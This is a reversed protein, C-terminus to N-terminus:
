SSAPALEKGRIADRFEDVEMPEVDLVECLKRITSLSPTTRGREINNVTMINLGAKASLERLSLLRSRRVEALRM